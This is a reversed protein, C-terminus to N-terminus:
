THIHILVLDKWDDDELRLGCGIGLAVCRLLVCGLSFWGLRLGYNVRVERSWPTGVIYM